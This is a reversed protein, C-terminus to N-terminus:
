SITQLESLYYGRIDEITSSNGHFTRFQRLADPFSSNADGAMPDM